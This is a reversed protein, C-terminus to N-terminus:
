GGTKVIYFGREKFYFNKNILDDLSIEETLKPDEAFEEEWCGYIEVKANNEVHTRIYNYLEQHNQQQEEPPNEEEDEFFLWEGKYLPAHRFGCGCGQNSGFYLINQFSMHKHIVEENEGILTTHFSPKNIDYPIIPLEKKSGIYFAM